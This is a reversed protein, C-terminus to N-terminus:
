RSWFNGDPWIIRDGRLVAVAGGWSPVVVRDGRIFAPAESGKENVFLAREDGPAQRIQCPQNPDGSNYWTGDLNPVEAVPPM